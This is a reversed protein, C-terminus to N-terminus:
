SIGLAYKEIAQAVGDEDSALAVFKAAKKAADTGNGMAFSLGAYQLMEVDNGNDGFAMVNEPPIHLNECFRELAVGKSTDAQNIEMNHKVSSTLAISPLKSFREWLPERWKPPVFPINIKEIGDGQDRTFESLDEVEQFLRNLIEMDMFHIPYEQLAQTFRREVLLRGKRFIEVLIEDRPILSLVKRAIDASLYGSHLVRQEKIDYTVAGNSTIAYRIGPIDMIARPLLADNRGTAPVVLIGEAIAAELAQKTRDSITMHDNKLTTGDLDLAILKINM